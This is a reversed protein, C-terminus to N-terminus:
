RRRAPRPAPAVHAEFLTHRPGKRIEGRARVTHVKCTLGARRLQQDFHPERAASWLVFVGHPELASRIRRLSALTYLAANGSTTLASPGNDVDLLIADWPGAEIANRVDGEFLRTRPDDLPQGALHGVFERSFRVVAPLLEAITLQADAGFADLVARATYGLGLGGLLIRPARRQAMCDYAIRGM